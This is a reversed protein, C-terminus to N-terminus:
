PYHSGVVVFGDDHLLHGHTSNFGITNNYSTWNSSNTWNGTWNGHHTWNTLNTWNAPRTTNYQSTNHSKMGRMVAATAPTAIVSIFKM